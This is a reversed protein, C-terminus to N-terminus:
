VEDVFFVRLVLNGDSLFDIFVIGFLVLFFVM